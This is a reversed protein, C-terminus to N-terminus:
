YFTHQQTINANVTVAASICCCYESIQKHGESFYVTWTCSVIRSHDCGRSGKLVLWARKNGLQLQSM